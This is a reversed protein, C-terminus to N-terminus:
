VGARSPARGRPGRLRAGAPDGCARAHPGRLPPLAAAGAPAQGGGGSAPAGGGAARARRQATLWVGPDIIRVAEDYVEAPGLDRVYPNNHAKAKRGGGWAKYGAFLRCELLRRVDSVEFRRPGPTRGKRATRGPLLYGRENLVACVGSITLPRWTGDPLTLGNVYRDYLERVVEAEEPDVVLRGRPRGDAHPVDYVAQYGYPISGGPWGGDHAKKYLGRSVAKVIKQKQNGSILLELGALLDDSEHAFDYVKGPTLVVAEADKCTKKIRLGDITDQDRSLRNLDVCIVAVLRGGVVPQGDVDVAKSTRGAALDRLLVPMDKRDEITEGSIGLDADYLVVRLGRENGLHALGLQDKVSWNDKQRGTSVRPYLAAYDPGDDIIQM